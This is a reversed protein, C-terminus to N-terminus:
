GKISYTIGREEGIFYFQDAKPGPLLAVPARPSEMTFLRTVTDNALSYVRISNKDAAVFHGSRTFTMRPNTLDEDFYQISHWGRDLWIIAAGEDMGIAMRSRTYPPSSILERVPTQTEMWHLGEGDYYALQNRLAFVVHRETARMPVILGTNQIIEPTLQHPISSVHHTATLKGSADARTLVLEATRTTLLWFGNYDDYTMGLSQADTKQFEIRMRLDPPTLSLNPLPQQTLVHVIRPADGPKYPQPIIQISHWPPRAAEHHNTETLVGKPGFCLASPYGNYQGSAVVSNGFQAAARVRFGSRFHIQNEIKIWLRSANPPPPMESPRSPQAKGYRRTDKGLMVDTNDLGRLIKLADSNPPTDPGGQELLHGLIVRTADRATEQFPSHAIVRACDSLIGALELSLNDALQREQLERVVGMARDLTGQRTHLYFYEVLCAKAQRGAPWSAFLLSLAREPDKLRDELIKAARLPDQKQTDYYTVAKEYAAMAAEEQGLNLHLEAVTEFEQLEEFLQIAEEYMGGDKLCRAAEAKNNLKDQYIVAAERFYSGVKLANATSPYDGLLHAFIYAARRHRGLQLERNAADRYTNQLRKRQTDDVIWPSVRGGGGLKGLQFDINRETLQSGPNTFGRGPEGGIPLAYRLGQDPDQEFLRLLRDIENSQDNRIQSLRNEAWDELRNVWTPDGGEKTPFMHTFRKVARFFGGGGQGQGGSGRGKNGKGRARGKKEGPMPPIQSPSDTGIGEGERSTSLMSALDRPTEVSISLKEPLPLLGPHARNWEGGSPTPLQILDKLFVAEEHDFGVLGLHPHFLNIDQLFLSAYDADTLPHRFQAESPVFVRGGLLTYPLTRSPMQPASAAVFLGGIATSGPASPVLYLPQEELKPLGSECLLRIWLGVDTGPVLWGDVSRTSKRFEHHTLQLSFQPM